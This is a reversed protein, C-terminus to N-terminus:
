KTTIEDGKGALAPFFAAFFAGAFFAGIFFAAALFATAFFLASLDIGTLFAPPLADVLLVVSVTSSFDWVTETEVTLAGINAGTISSRRNTIGGGGRGNFLPLFVVGKFGILLAGVGITTLSESVGHVGASSLTM